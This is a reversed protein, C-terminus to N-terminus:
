QQYNDSFNLQLRINEHMFSKERRSGVFNRGEMECMKLAKHLLLFKIFRWFRDTAICHPISITNNEREWNTVETCVFVSTENEREDLLFTSEITQHKKERQRHYIFTFGCEGDWNEVVVVLLCSFILLIDWSSIM